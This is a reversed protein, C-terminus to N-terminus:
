SSTSTYSFWGNFGVGSILLFSLIYLLISIIVTKNPRKFKSTVKVVLSVLPNPVDSVALHIVSTYFVLSLLQFIMAMILFIFGLAQFVLFSFGIIGFERILTVFGDVAIAESMENVQLPAYIPNLALYMLPYGLLAFFLTSYLYRKWERDHEINRSIGFFVNFLVLSLIFTTFGSVVVIVETQYKGYFFSLFAVGILLAYLLFESDENQSRHKISNARQPALEGKNKNSFSTAENDQDKIEIVHTIILQQVNKFTVTKENKKQSFTKGLLFMLVGVLLPGWFAAIWLESFLKEISM